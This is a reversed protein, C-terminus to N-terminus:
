SVLCTYRQTLAVGNADTATVELVYTGTAGATITERSLGPGRTSRAARSSGAMTYAYAATGGSATFTQTFASGATGATIAGVAPSLAIVVTATLVGDVEASVEFTMGEGKSSATLGSVGTIFVNGGWALKGATSDVSGVFAVSDSGVLASLTKYTEEEYRFKMTVNEDAVGSTKPIGAEEFCPEGRVVDAKRASSWQICQYYRSGSLTVRGKKGSKESQISGPLAMTKRRRTRAARGGTTM